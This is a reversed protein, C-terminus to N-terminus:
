EKTQLELQIQQIKQQLAVRVEPLDKFYNIGHQRDSDPIGPCVYVKEALRSRPPHNVYKWFKPQVLSKNSTNM